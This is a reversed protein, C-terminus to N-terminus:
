GMNPSRGNGAHCCGSVVCNRAVCRGSKIAAALLLGGGRGGSPKRRNGAIVHTRTAGRVVNQRHLLQSLQDIFEVIPHPYERTLIWRVNPDSPNGRLKVGVPLGEVLVGGHSPTAEAFQILM